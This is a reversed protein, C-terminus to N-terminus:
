CLSKRNILRIEVQHLKLRGCQYAVENLEGYKM